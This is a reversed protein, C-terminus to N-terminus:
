YHSYRDGANPKRYKVTKQIIYLKLFMIKEDLKAKIEKARQEAIKDLWGDAYPSDKFYNAYDLQTQLSYIEKKEKLFPPSFLDLEM